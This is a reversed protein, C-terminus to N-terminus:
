SDQLLIDGDKSRLTIGYRGSPDHAMEVNTDGGESAVSVQYRAKPVRVNIRGGDTRVTASVPTRATLQVAGESSQARVPGGKINRGTIRGKGTVVEVAGTVGNLEVRGSGTTVRVSGVQSLKVTGGSVKGRVPIGDPVEVEYEATCDKGCDGLVLVGNEISYTSKKPRDGRYEVRRELTLAAGGKRGRVTVDGPGDLLVSTIKGSLATRDDFSDGRTMGCGSLGTTVLGAVTM